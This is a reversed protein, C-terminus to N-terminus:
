PIFSMLSFCCNGITGRAVYNSDQSHPCVSLRVWLITSIHSKRQDKQGNKTVCPKFFVCLYFRFSYSWLCNVTVWQEGLWVLVEPNTHVSLRVSGVEIDGKKRRFPPPCYCEATWFFAPPILEQFIQGLTLAHPSISCCACKKILKIWIHIVKM